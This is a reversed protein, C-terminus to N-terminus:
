TVHARRRARRRSAHPRGGRAALHVATASRRGRGRASALYGMWALYSRASAPATLRQRAAPCVSTSSRQRTGRGPVFGRSHEPPLQDSRLPFAHCCTRSRVATPLPLGEGPLVVKMEIAAAGKPVDNNALARIPGSLTTGLLEKTVPDHVSMLLRRLRFRDDPGPADPARFLAAAATVPGGFFYTFVNFPHPLEASRSPLPFAVCPLSDSGIGLAAHAGSTGPARLARSLM